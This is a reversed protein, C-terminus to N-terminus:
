NQSVLIRTASVQVRVGERARLYALFADVDNTAFAGSIVVRGLEPSGIVIPTRSYRNFEEAVAALPQRQFVIERRMWATASGADLNVPGAVIEDGSVVVQQGADLVVLRSGGASSGLRVQVRGEVVTVVTREPQRYVSFVTGLATVEASGAIVRFPRSIDHAVNSMVEGRELEVRRETSSYRVVVATNTNLTLVSQDQLPRTVLEGHGAVLRLAPDETPSIARQTWLVGVAIAALVAAAALHRWWSRAQPLRSPFAVVQAGAEDPESRARAVLAGVQGAGANTVAVGRALHDMLRFERAHDPSAALWAAFERQQTDSLGEERALLWDAAEEQVVSERKM